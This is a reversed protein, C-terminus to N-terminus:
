FGTRFGIEGVFRLAPVVAVRNGHTYVDTKGLAAELGAGAFVGATGAVQVGLEGVLDAAPLWRSRTVPAVDDESLHSATFYSAMADVRLGVEVRRAPSGSLALGAGLLLTRTSAQAEPINGARGSVFGRGWVPGAWRFRIGAMAGLGAATGGVGSSVIGAFELSRPLPRPPGADPPRPAPPAPLLEATPPALQKPTPEDPENAPVDRFMAAAAFGLLRGRESTERPDGAPNNGFRVERDVWRREKVLYCHLLASSGDATWSLEIVGDAASGRAASEEDPPDADVAVLSVNAEPGLVARAAREFASSLPDSADHAIILVLLSAAPVSV